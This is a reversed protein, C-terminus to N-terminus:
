WNSCNVLNTCATLMRPTTSWHFRSTSCQWRTIRLMTSHLRWISIVNPPIPIWSLLLNTVTSQNRLTVVCITRMVWTICLLGMTTISYSLASILLFPKMTIRSCAIRMVWITSRSVRAQTWNSLGSITHSRRQQRVLSSTPMLWITIVIPCTTMSRWPKSITTLLRKLSTWIMSQMAWASSLM